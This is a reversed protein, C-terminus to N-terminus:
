EEELEKILRAMEERATHTAVALPAPRVNPSMHLAANMRAEHEFHEDVTVMTDYIKGLERALDRATRM